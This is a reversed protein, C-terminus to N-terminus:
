VNDFLRGPPNSFMLLYPYTGVSHSFSCASLLNLVHQWLRMGDPRHVVRSQGALWDRAADPPLSFDSVDSPARLMQLVHPLHLRVQSPTSYHFRGVCSHSPRDM